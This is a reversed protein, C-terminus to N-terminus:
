SDGACSVIMRSCLSCCGVVWNEWLGDAPPLVTQSMDMKMNVTTMWLKELYASKISKGMYSLPKRITESDRRGCPGCASGKTM